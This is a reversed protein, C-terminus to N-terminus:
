FNEEFQELYDQINGSRSLLEGGAAGAIVMILALILGIGGTIIGAIAMGKGEADKVISIIGLVVAAIAVILSFWGLCCCVIAVIGCIMSAISLGKLGNGQDTMNDAASEYHTTTEGASGTFSHEPKIEEVDEAKLTEVAPGEDPSPEAAKAPSENNETAPEVKNGCSPCFKVGEKIEDGCNKCIM